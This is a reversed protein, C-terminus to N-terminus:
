GNILGELVADREGRSHSKPLLFGTIVALALLGKERDSPLKLLRDHFSKCLAIETTESRTHITTTPHQPM